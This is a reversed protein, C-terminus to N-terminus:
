PIRTARKRASAALFILSHRPATGTQTMGSGEHDFVKVRAGRAEVNDDDVFGALAVHHRQDGQVQALRDENDAVVLLDAGRGDALIQAHNLVEDELIEASNGVGIQVIALDGDVIESALREAAGGAKDFMEPANRLDDLEAVRNGVVAADLGQAVRAADMQPRVGDRM